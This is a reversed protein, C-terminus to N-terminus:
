GSAAGSKRWSSHLRRKWAYEFDYATVPMGNTWSADRLTFLYTKGDKSITWSKAIAPQPVNKNDLRTLGDFVQMEITSEPVGITIGPDIGPPEAGLNYTVEQAVVKAPPAVPPGSSPKACSVFGFLSVLLGAILVLSLAKRM